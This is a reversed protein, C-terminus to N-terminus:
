DVNVMSDSNDIRLVAGAASIQVMPDHDKLMQALPGLMLQNESVGLAVACQSRISASDNKSLRLVPELPIRSPDIEALATAAVLRIEDPFRQPSLTIGELTSAIEVDHLRGIIQCALATVESEQASSFVAARIVELEEHEGLKVLAEAMQLNILRRRIPTITKPIDKLASRILLVASINGMRGLIMAANGRLEPKSSQLMAALPNLDVKGGCKYISYMAAARVSESEDRLLPELLLALKCLKKEGLMMSAVFRVGRNEDGLGIRVANELVDLPAYRLSEVANARLLANSSESAQRLISLASQRVTEGDVLMPIKPTKAIEEITKISQQKSSWPSESARAVPDQACSICVTGSLISLLLKM